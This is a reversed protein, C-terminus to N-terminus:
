FFLKICTYIYIYFLYFKIFLKCVKLLKMNEEELSVLSNQKQMIVDERRKNESDVLTYSTKLMGLENELGGLRIFILIIM